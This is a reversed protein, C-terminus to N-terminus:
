KSTCSIRIYPCANEPISKHPSLKTCTLRAITSACAYPKIENTSADCLTRQGEIKFNMPYLNHIRLVLRYSISPISHGLTPSINNKHFVSICWTWIILQLYFSMKFRHPSQHKHLNSSSLSTAPKNSSNHSSIALLSLTVRWNYKVSITERRHSSIIDDDHALM